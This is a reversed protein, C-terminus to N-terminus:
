PFGLEVIDPPVQNFDSYRLWTPKVRLHILGPWSLRERGEPFQAFYIERLRDLEAGVPEDIVGELQVSREDGATFGGIVLAINPNQRLNRVKRTSEVTDFVIEFNDSVVFGVVAAQPLGSTSVSTQVALSHSRMFQLIANKSTGSM